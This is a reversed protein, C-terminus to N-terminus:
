ARDVTVTGELVRVDDGGPFGIMLVYRGPRRFNLTETAESELRISIGGDGDLTIGDQDTVSALVTGGATQRIELLATCGVLDYPDGPTDADPGPQRWTFQKRWTAGQEIFIPLNGAAM